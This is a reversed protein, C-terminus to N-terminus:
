TIWALTAMRGSRKGDRRYSHFQRSDEFTCMGGGLVQVVGMSNLAIKALAYLDALWKGERVGPKFAADTAEGPLVFQFRERVEEGVEFRMPGIAPGLWCVLEEPPTSFRAVSAQLVGDALGRWGAHAVAVEATAQGTIVVPLCDATLVVLVDGAHDTWAADFDCSQDEIASDSVNIGHTQKLWRPEAPLKLQSKLRERNRAVSAPDDGSHLGLNMSDYPPLSCGGIRTTTFARIKKEALTGVPWIAEVVELNQEFM